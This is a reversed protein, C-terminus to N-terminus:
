NEQVNTVIESYNAVYALLKAEDNVDIWSRNKGETDLRAVIDGFYRVVRSIQLSDQDDQVRLTECM